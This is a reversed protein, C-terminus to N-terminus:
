VNNSSDIFLIVNSIKIISMDGGWGGVGGGGM